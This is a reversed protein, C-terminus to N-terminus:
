KTVELGLYFKKYGIPIVPRFVFIGGLRVVILM